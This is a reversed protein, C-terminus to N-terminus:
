FAFHDVLGSDREQGFLNMMQHLSFDQGFWLWHKADTDVLYYSNDYFYNNMNPRFMADGGYDNDAGIKGYASTFTIKNDHVHVNKTVYAGYAGAGREQEILGIANGGSEPVTVQNGRVEIDQSNQILIQSNWLWGKESDTNYRVINDVIRGAYSIEYQIGNGENYEVVNREIVMGTNDIDIWLGTCYNHHIYNEVVQTNVQHSIKNGCEWDRSFGAYNNYSLENGQVLANAGNGGIGSQGNHHIHNNRVVANSAFKVGLGHNLRIENNEILWGDAPYQDGIAGMQAPIAYKEITLNRITVNEATPLFATRTTAVEVKHGHPDDGFYITDADYDFFFTGPRLDKKSGVHRLPVDDFFVDEPYACRPFAPDCEGHVQGDQTQDRAVWWGDKRAFETLPVAGSLIVGSLVAGAGAKGAAAAGATSAVADGAQGESPEEDVTAQGAAQGEAPGEAALQRQPAVQGEFTDGEKPSITQNRYLGSSLIYTTGAPNSDVVAQIDDGPSLVIASGDTM